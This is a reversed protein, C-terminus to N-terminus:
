AYFIIEILVEVLVIIGDFIIRIVRINQVSELLKFYM